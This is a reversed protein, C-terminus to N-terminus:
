KKPTSTVGRLRHEHGRPKHPNWSHMNGHPRERDVVRRAEKTQQHAHPQAKEPEAKEAQAKEPEAKEAKAKEPQAKEEVLLVNSHEDPIASPPTQQFKVMLEGSLRPTDFALCGDDVLKTLICMVEKSEGDNPSTLKHLTDYVALGQSFNSSMTSYVLENYVKVEDGSLMKYADFYEKNGDLCISEWDELREENAPLGDCGQDLLIGFYCILEPNFVEIATLKSGPLTGNYALMGLLNEVYGAADIGGNDEAGPVEVPCVPAATSLVALALVAWM